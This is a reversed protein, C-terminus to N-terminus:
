RRSSRRLGAAALRRRSHATSRDAACDRCSRRRARGRTDPRARRPTKAREHLPPRAVLAAIEWSGAGSSRRGLESQAEIRGARPIEEVHAPAGHSTSARARQPLTRQPAQRRRAPRAPAGRSAAQATREDLGRTVDPHRVVSPEVLHRDIERRSRAVRGRVPPTCSARTSSRACTRRPRVSGSRMAYSRTPRAAFFTSAGSASSLASRATAPSDQLSTQVISSSAPTKCAAKRWASVGSAETSTSAIVRLAGTRRTRRTTRAVSRRSSTAAARRVTQGARGCISSASTAATPRASNSSAAHNADRGAKVSFGSWIRPAAPSAPLRRQGREDFARTTAHWSSVPRPCRRSVRPGSASASISASRREPPYKTFAVSRKSISLADRGTSTTRSSGPRM